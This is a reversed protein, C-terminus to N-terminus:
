KCRGFLKVGLNNKYLKKVLIILQYYDDEYTGTSCANTFTGM